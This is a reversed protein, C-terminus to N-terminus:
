GFFSSVDAELLAACIEKLMGDLAKEDVVDSRTLGSVANTIRKGLDALVM